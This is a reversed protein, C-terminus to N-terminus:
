YLTDNVISLRNSFYRRLEKRCGKFIFIQLIGIMWHTSWVLQVSLFCKSRRIVHSQVTQQWDVVKRGTVDQWWSLTSGSYLLVSRTATCLDMRKGKQGNSNADTFSLKDVISAYLKRLIWQTRSTNRPMTWTMAPNNPFRDAKMLIHTQTTPKIGTVSIQWAM